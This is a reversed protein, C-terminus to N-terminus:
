EKLFLKVFVQILTVTASAKSNQYPHPYWFGRHGLALMRAAPHHPLCLSKDQGLGRSSVGELHSCGGGAQPSREHQWGDPEEPGEGSCRGSESGSSEMHAEGQQTLFWLQERSSPQGAASFSLVGPSQLQSCWGVVHCQENKELQPSVPDCCAALTNEAPFGLSWSGKPCVPKWPPSHLLFFPLLYFSPSFNFRSLAPCGQLLCSPLQLFSSRINQSVPVFSASVPSSVPM